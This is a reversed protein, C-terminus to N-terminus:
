LRFEKILKSAFEFIQKKSANTGSKEFAFFLAGWRKNGDTKFNLQNVLGNPSHMQRHLGFDLAITFGEVDIGAAKFKDKM